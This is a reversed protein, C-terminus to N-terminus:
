NIYDPHTLSPILSLLTMNPFIYVKCGKIYVQKNIITAFVFQPKRIIHIKIFHILIFSIYKKLLYIKLYIILWIVLCSIFNNIVGLVEHIWEIVEDERRWRLEDNHYPDDVAPKDAM